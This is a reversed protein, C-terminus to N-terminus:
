KALDGERVAMVMPVVFMAIAAINLLFFFFGMYATGALLVTSFVAGIICADFWLPRNTM